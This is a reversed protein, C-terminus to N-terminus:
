SREKWNPSEENQEFMSGLAHWWPQFVFGVWEAAVDPDENFHQHEVGGPKVPLVLLDGAKWDRREGDTVTYGRGRHVYIALGGQHTHRGSHTAIHHWFVQWDELAVEPMEPDVFHMSRGQRHHQWELDKAKIVIQGEDARTRRAAYHAYVLEYYNPQEVTQTRERTRERESM